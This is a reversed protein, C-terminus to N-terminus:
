KQSISGKREEEDDRAECDSYMLSDKVEENKLFGTHNLSLHLIEEDSLEISEREGEFDV